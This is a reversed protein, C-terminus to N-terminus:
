SRTSATGPEPVSQINSRAAAQELARDFDEQTIEGAEEPAEEVIAIVDGSPDPKGIGQAVAFGAFLLVLLGGFLIVPLAKPDRARSRM